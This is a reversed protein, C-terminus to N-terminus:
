KTRINQVTENLEEETFAQEFFYRKKNSDVILTAPIAGSWTESVKRMYTDYDTEDLWLVEAQIGKKIVLSRVKSLEQPFDLSVFFVKVEQQKDLLDFHPLEKICPACWTAWFNVITVPSTSQEVLQELDNFNVTKVEQSYLSSSLTIALSLISTKLM